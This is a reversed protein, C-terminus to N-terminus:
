EAQDLVRRIHETVRQEVVSDLSAGDPLYQGGNSIFDMCRTYTSTLVARAEGPDPKYRFSIRGEPVKSLSRSLELPRRLYRDVPAFCAQAILRVAMAETVTLRVSRAPVRWADLLYYGSERIQGSGASVWGPNWELIDHATSLKRRVSDLDGGSQLAAEIRAFVETSNARHIAAQYDTDPVTNAAQPSGAWRAHIWDYARQYRSITPSQGMGPHQLSSSSGADTAHWLTTSSGMEDAIAPAAAAVVGVLLTSHIIRYM